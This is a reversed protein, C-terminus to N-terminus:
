LLMVFVIIVIVLLQLAQWRLAINFMAGDQGKINALSSTYRLLSPKLPNAPGMTVMAAIGVLVAPAVGVLDAASLQMRSFMSCAPIGQGFAMGALFGLGSLLAGYASAGWQSMHTALLTIQGTDLMLNVMAGGLFLTILSPLSRKSAIAFDKVFTSSKKVFFVYCLLATLFVYFGPTTLINISTSTYGWLSLDFAAQNVLAKLPYSFLVVILSGGILPAFAKLITGTSFTETTDEGGSSERALAEKEEKKYKKSFLWMTIFSITAAAILTLIYLNPFVQTFLFVALMNAAISLIAIMRNDKDKFSFGMIRFFGIVSIIILPLTLLGMTQVIDEIPLKTVTSAINAAIFLSVFAISWSFYVLYGVAAKLGDSGLKVLGPITVPYTAFGNFAGLYGGVVSVLTMAKGAKTPLVKNLTNLLVSLAGTSRFCQGFIQGTWLVLFGNWITINGWVSATITNLIPMQYFVLVIVIELIWVILSLILADMRFVIFGVLLVAFPLLAVIIHLVTTDL